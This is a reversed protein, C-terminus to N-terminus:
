TAAASPSPNASAGASASASVGASAAASSTPSAGPSISASPGLSAAPSPAATESSGPNTAPPGVPGPTAEPKSEGPSPSGSPQATPVVLQVDIRFDFSPMTTSWGPSLSIDVQGYQSLYARADDVSRGQIESRLQDATVSPVQLAQVQVPVVVTSGQAIPTAVRTSLSGPVLEYGSKVAATARRNVLDTVAAMDAIIATGTAQCDLQFSDVAQNVLGAPDPNCTALGLKSSQSFLTSGSPAADPANLASQFAGQLQNTLSIEASDIDSQQIKATVTHTGGSTATKNTVPHSNVLSNTLDAPAKVITGAGVNGSLGKVAATVAANATGPTFISGSVTAKPVTVTSNTQFVIGSATSVQTGAPVPVSLFTNNSTFTVTGTAATDVVNQGTADFIGSVEVPFSKSVGPVTTAQLNPATASPDVTVSVTMPGVPEERLTLRVSASPFFFFAAGGVLLFAVLGAMALVYIPVQGVRLRDVRSLSAGGPGPKSTRSPARAPEITLALEDLATAAAGSAGAKAGLVLATEAREYDGVSAYVPLDASRAVSQVSPDAAIIALRKGRHRAENALLRFNIRSTAVRAGGPLVLAIRSDSSNRIRAAASTIEDDIDLYYIAM